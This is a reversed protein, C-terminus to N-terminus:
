GDALDPSAERAGTPGYLVRVLTLGEAPATAGAQSRDEGKLVEAPWAEPRRGLGVPLLTGVLNRVMHRLFGSGLFELRVRAGSAGHVDLRHLTRVTDEVESGTAQFARFDHRGVLPEAARRMASVDLPQPVRTTR